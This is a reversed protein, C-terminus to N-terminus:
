PTLTELMRTAARSASPGEPSLLTAGTAKAAQRFAEAAEQTYAPGLASLCLGRNFDITGQSVGQTAQVKAERLAQLAKGYQRFHMHTRALNLMAFGAADGREAALQLRLEVLMLPYCIEPAQLPLSLPALTVQVQCSTAGQGLTARGGSAVQRLVQRFAAVSGVAQGDVQTIAEHLRVGAKLAEPTAELVWPGPEGPVDLLTLGTWPESLSPIGNLRAVLPALPDQDLPKIRLTESPGDLTSLVLDVQPDGPVPRASLTLEASHEEKVRALAAGPGEEGRAPIFGVQTLQTGLDQLLRTLRAQDPVSGEVGLFVLRPHPRVQLTTTQADKIEVRRTCSGEPFDVRLEVTGPCIPLERVPLPGQSHGDLFLVGGPAASNVTLTGRAAELRVPELTNDAFPSSFSPDLDFLRPRHCPAKVEIRHPGPKFGDLILADSLEALPIGAKAALDALGASAQGQTSGAPQGDLLVEAGIPSTYIKLTSSSRELSLEVAKSAKAELALALERPTYGPRAYALVHQGPPLYLTARPVLPVRDLSLRGGEPALSLSVKAFRASRASEYANSLRTNTLSHDLEFAPDLDLIAELHQVAQPRKAPVRDELVALWNYSVCLITREEPLLAAGKPGLTAIIAEFRTSAGERDGQNAWQAKAASFADGIAPDQGRLGTSTLLGLALLSLPLLRSM